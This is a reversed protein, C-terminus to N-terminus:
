NISVMEYGFPNRIYQWYGNVHIFWQGNELKLYEDTQPRYHTALLPTM